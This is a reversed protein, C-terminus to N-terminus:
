HQLKHREAANLLYDQTILPKRYPLCGAMLDFFGIQSYIALKAAAFPRLSRFAVSLLKRGLHQAFYKRSVEKEAESLHSTLELCTMAMCFRRCLIEPDRTEKRIQQDPHQRWWVLSPQLLLTDHKEAARIWLETDGLYPEGSFGGLDEFIERRIITASPGAGLPSAGLFHLRITDQPKLRIPYPSPPDPCRLSMGVAVAPHNEIANVMLKLTHSYITDDADIYKLFEGRALSAARNRNPYDGLNRENVFVRIRADRQAFERAIEVSRDTSQDDVVIVEFDEFDSALISELCEALYSERNYVTVLVSVRPALGTKDPSEPPSHSM